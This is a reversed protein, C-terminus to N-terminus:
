DVILNSKITNHCFTLGSGKKVPGLLFIWFKISVMVLDSYLLGLKTLIM